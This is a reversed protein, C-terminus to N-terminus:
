NQYRTQQTRRGRKHKPQETTLGSNGKGVEEDQGVKIIKVM